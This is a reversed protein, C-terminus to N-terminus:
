RYTFFGPAHSNGNPVGTRFNDFNHRRCALHNDALPNQWTGLPEVTRVWSCRSRCMSQVEMRYLRCDDPVPVMAIIRIILSDPLAYTRLRSCKKACSDLPQHVGGHCSVRCFMDKVPTQVHPSISSISTGVRWVWMNPGTLVKTGMRGSGHPRQLVSLANELSKSCMYMTFGTRSRRSPSFNLM